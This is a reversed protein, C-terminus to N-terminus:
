TSAAVFGAVAAAAKEPADSYLFHGAGPISTLEAGPIEKAFRHAGALPAFDDTEGWLLLVPVGLAALKGEYPILDEFNGSRYLELVGTRGPETEFSLWYEDIAEETFGQGISSMLGGFGERDMGAIVQEGTGPTRLADAMGHWKGDPFFGTASIVLGAIREPHDCAWRLGILGGWDHVVLHVPPLDLESAFREVADVQRTWTSPPDPESRGCGPRDLAIARRGRSACATLVDNWMWSTEPFGHLCLVPTAAPDAGEGPGAERYALSGTRRLEIDSM